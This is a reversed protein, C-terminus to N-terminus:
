LLAKLVQFFPAMATPSLPPGASPFASAAAMPMLAAAQKQQRLFEREADQVHKVLMHYMASIDDCKNQQVCDIVAEHSVNVTRTIHDVVPENIPELDSTATSCTSTAIDDLLRVIPPHGAAHMVTWPHKAIQHLPLRRDPDIVLLGKLLHECDSSLFFPVRYQCGVVRSRLDQLTAGDFPLSGSVLVYLVVGLSWIDAKPGVYQKGEFLEPAAYPPSGCWTSLLEGATYYNSFGFDAL